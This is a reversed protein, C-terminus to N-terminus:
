LLQLKVGNIVHLPKDDFCELLPDDVCIALDVDVHLPASMFFLLLARPLGEFLQDFVDGREDAIVHVLLRVRLQGGSM